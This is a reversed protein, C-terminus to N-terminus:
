RLATASAIRDALDTCDIPRTTDVIVTPTLGLPAAQEAWVRWDAVLHHQDQFLPARRRARYRAKAVEPPVDCWIEVARDPQIQKIGAEAFHLDRPKFWWSDIVVPLPTARALAWIAEMAVAGLDPITEANDLCSALAEKFIDKSLFQAGLTDALARGLTSKGSAPLGNILVLLKDM